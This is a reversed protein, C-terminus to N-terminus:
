ATESKRSASLLAIYKDVSQEIGFFQGREALLARPWPKDLTEAIALSMANANDPRVLTGFQGKGLIEAPGSPCDTGVVSTGVALAEVIVNGFGEWRSSLVFVSAARM